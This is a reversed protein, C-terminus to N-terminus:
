AKEVLALLRVPLTGPYGGLRQFTACPEGCVVVLAKVRATFGDPTQVLDGRKVRQGVQPAPDATIFRNLTQGVATQTSM